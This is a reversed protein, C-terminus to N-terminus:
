DGSAPRHQHQEPVDFGPLPQPAADRWLPEPYTGDDAVLSIEAADSSASVM